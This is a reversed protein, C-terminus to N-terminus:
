QAGRKRNWQKQALGLLSLLLPLGSLILFLGPLTFVNRMLWAAKGTLEEPKTATVSGESYVISVDDERYSQPLLVWMTVQRTEKPDLDGVPFRGKALGTQLKNTADRFEYYVEDAYVVKLGTLAKDGENSITLDILGNHSRAFEELPRVSYTSSGKLLTSPLLSDPYSFVKERPLQRLLQHYLKDIVADRRTIATDRRDPQLLYTPLVFRIHRYTAQLDGHPAFLLPLVSLLGAVGGVIGVVFAISKSL